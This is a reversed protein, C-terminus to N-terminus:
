IHRFFAPPLKTSHIVRYIDTGCELALEEIDEESAGLPLQCLMTYVTRFEDNVPAVRCSARKSFNRLENETRTKSSTIFDILFRTDQPGIIGLQAEVAGDFANLARELADKPVGAAMAEEYLRKLRNNTNMDKNIRAEKMVYSTHKGVLAGVRKDKASKLRAINQWKAHGAFSRSASPVSFLKRVCFAM